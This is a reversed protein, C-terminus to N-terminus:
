LVMFPMPEDHADGPNDPDVYEHVAQHAREDYDGLRKLLRMIGILAMVADDSSGSKAEYSGGKAIFNKLEEILHHSRIHLHDDGKEILTKLQLCSLVKTKGSTFVGYKGPQDTFLESDVPREDNMYLAALAEGIGNREFTWLVDARGRPGPAELKQIIWKLKAYLLPIKVDKTTFEAVQKLGPFEFVEIASNDNGSGTAPDCSVLYFKGRGGLQDEPVWFKFGLSEFVPAEARLQNLRISNILLADSSLFECDMEVRCRIEGLKAKMKDYFAQDREPHEYWMAKVPVFGNQGSNAGRWLQAFLDSDGNPTSTLVFKGGTSLSPALSGWMEEQIRRSVFAIEDIYVITPSGGRGTKETTPESEIRSGNDFEISTRNFFVCGAKLWHPLEEYAIKIRHMIEVAHKMAKSAIVCLRDDEFTTLWLMYMAVVTTKGLQRSALIIVDKNEHIAKIMRKQYDFLKMPILGKTPHQVKVYNEIFYIPDAMCRKLAVLDEPLYESVAYARKVNHNKAM